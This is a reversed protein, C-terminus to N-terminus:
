PNITGYNRPLKSHVSKITHARNTNVMSYKLGNRQPTTYHALKSLIHSFDRIGVCIALLYLSIRTINLRCERVSM